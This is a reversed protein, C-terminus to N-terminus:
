RQDKESAEEAIEAFREEASQEQLTDQEEETLEPEDDLNQNANDQIQADTEAMSEKADKFPQDGQDRENGRREQPYRVGM